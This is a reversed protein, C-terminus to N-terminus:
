AREKSKKSREFLIGARGENKADERFIDFMISASAFIGGLMAIAAAVIPANHDVAIYAGDGAALGLGAYIVEATAAVKKFKRYQDATFEGGHEHMM